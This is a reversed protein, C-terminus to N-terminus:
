ETLTESADTPVPRITGPELYKQHAEWEEDTPYYGDHYVMRNLAPRELTNPTDYNARLVTFKVTHSWDNGNEQCFFRCTYTNNVGHDLDGDASKFGSLTAEEFIKQDSQVPGEHELYCIINKTKDEVVEVGYKMDVYETPYSGNTGNKVAGFGCIIDTYHFITRSIFTTQNDLDFICNLRQHLDSYLVTSRDKWFADINEIQEFPM